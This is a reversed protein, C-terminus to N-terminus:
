SKNTGKSSFIKLAFTRAKTILTKLFSHRIQPVARPPELGSDQEFVSSNNHVDFVWDPILFSSNIGYNLQSDGEDDPDNSHRRDHAPYPHHRVTFVRSPRFDVFSRSPRHGEELVGRISPFHHEKPRGCGSIRPRFVPSM